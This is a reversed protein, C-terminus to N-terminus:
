RRQQLLRRIGMVVLVIGAGSACLVVFWLPGGRSTQQRLDPQVILTVVGVSIGALGLVFLGVVQKTSEKSPKTPPM